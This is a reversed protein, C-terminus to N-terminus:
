MWGDEMMTSSVLTYHLEVCVPNSCYLVFTLVNFFSSAVNHKQSSFSSKLKDLTKHLPHCVNDMIAILKALIRNVAVEELTVPESGVVSGAKKILKNLRNTIYTM